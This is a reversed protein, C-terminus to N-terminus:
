GCDGSAPQAANTSVAGRRAVHSAVAPLLALWGLNGALVLPLIPEVIRPYGLSMLGFAWSALCALPVVFLPPFLVALVIMGVVGSTFTLLSKDLLVHDLPRPLLTRRPVRSLPEDHDTMTQVVRRGLTELYYGPHQALWLLALHQDYQAAEYDNPFRAEAEQQLEGVTKTVVTGDDLRITVAGYEWLFTYPGQTTLPVVHGYLRYSRVLWPAWLLFVGAALAVGCRLVGARADPARLLVLAGMLFPGLVLLVVFIPRTQLTIAYLAGAWFFDRARALRLARLSGAISAYLMAESPGESAIKYSWFISAKSLAIVLFLAVGIWQRSALAVERVMWLATACTLAALFYHWAVLQEDRGCVAMVAARLIPLVPPRYSRWFPSHEFSWGDLVRLAISEFDAMDSFPAEHVLSWYYVRLTWFLLLGLTLGLM